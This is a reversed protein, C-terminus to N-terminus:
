GATPSRKGRTRLYAVAVRRLRLVRAKARDLLKRAWPFETALIAFGLPIVLVAPGPLVVMAVGAVLVGTGLVAVCVQRAPRPVRRWHGVAVRPLRRWWRISDRPPSPVSPM